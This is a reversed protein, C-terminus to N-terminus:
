MGNVSVYVKDVKDLRYDIVTRNKKANSSYPSEIHEILRGGYINDDQLKQCVLKHFESMLTTNNVEVCIEWTMCREGPKLIANVDDHIISGNDLKVTYKGYMGWVRIKQIQATIPVVKICNVADLRINKLETDNFLSHTTYISFDTISTIGQSV